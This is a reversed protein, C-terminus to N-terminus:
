IFVRQGVSSFLESLNRWSNQNTGEKGELVGVLNVKSEARVSNKFFPVIGYILKSSRLQKGLLPSPPPLTLGIFDTFSIQGDSPM